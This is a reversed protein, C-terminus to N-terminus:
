LKQLKHVSLIRILEQREAENLSELPIILPNFTEAIRFIFLINEIIIYHSFVEWKEHVVSQYNEFFLEEDTIEAILRHPPVPNAFKRKKVITYDKYILIAWYLLVIFLGIGLGLGIHCNYNTISQTVGNVIEFSQIDQGDLNLVILIISIPIFLLIGYLNKKFYFKKYLKQYRKNDKETINKEIRIGM